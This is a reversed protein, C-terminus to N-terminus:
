SNSWSTDTCHQGSIEVTADAHRGGDKFKRKAVRNPAHISATRCKYVVEAFNSRGKSDCKKVGIDTTYTYTSGKRIEVSVSQQVVRGKSYWDGKKVAWGVKNVYISYPTKNEVQLKVHCTAKAHSSVTLALVALVLINILKIM